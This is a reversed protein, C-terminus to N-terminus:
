LLPGPQLQSPFPGSFSNLYFILKQERRAEGSALSTGKAAAEGAPVLWRPAALPIHPLTPHGCGVGDEGEGAGAEM